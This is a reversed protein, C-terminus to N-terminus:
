TFIIRKVGANILAKMCNECPLSYRVVKGNNIRTVYMTTGKTHKVHNLCDREAHVTYDETSNCTSSNRKKNHGIGLVRGNKVLVAGHRISCDSHEAVKAALRLFDRDQNSLRDNLIIKM